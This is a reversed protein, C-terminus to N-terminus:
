FKQSINIVYPGHLFEQTLPHPQQVANIDNSVTTSLGSVMAFDSTTPERPIDDYTPHNIVTTQVLNHKQEKKFGGDLILQM